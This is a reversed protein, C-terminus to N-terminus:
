EHTNTKGELTRLQALAKRAEEKNPPRGHWEFKYKMFDVGYGPITHAIIVTPRGMITKAMNFANIIQDVNHGDIEIVYWNFSELKERLPELPMINETYGDIQISNRDIIWTLNSLKEKAGFMAAEWTSGENLEGDSTLCYVRHSAEDLRAALAMGCAISLGQGLSGSSTELGPLELRHPHGQLKSGLKRLTLLEKKDFFGREALAAYLIPCIHGASLVFRDRKKDTPNKPDINLTHFYLVAFIDAAGLPGASHGSKAELLMEIVHKRLKTAIAQLDQITSKELTKPPM